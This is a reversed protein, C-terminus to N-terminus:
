TDACPADFRNTTAALGGRAVMRRDRVCRDPAPELAHGGTRQGFWILGARGVTVMRWNAYMVALATLAPLILLGDRWGAGGICESNFGSGILLQALFFDVPLSTAYTLAFALGPSIYHGCWVLYCLVVTAGPLVHLSTEDATMTVRALVASLALSFVVLWFQDGMGLGSRARRAVVIGFSILAPLLAGVTNAM